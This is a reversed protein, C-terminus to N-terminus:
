KGRHFSIGNIRGTIVLQEKTMRVLELDCGSVRVTGFSVRACIEKFGYQTVGKHREILVRQNGFVEVIPQGPLPEAPLDAQLALSHMNHTWRKRM